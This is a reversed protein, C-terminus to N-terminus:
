SVSKRAAHRSAKRREQIAEALMWVAEGATEPVEPAVAKVADEAALKAACVFLGCAMWCKLKKM